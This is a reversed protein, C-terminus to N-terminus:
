SRSHVYPTPLPAMKLLPGLKTNRKLSGRFTDMSRLWTVIGALPIKSLWEADMAAFTLLPALVLLAATYALGTEHHALVCQGHMHTDLSTKQPFGKKCVECIFPKYRLHTTEVHRKVLQKKSTYECTPKKRDEPTPWTCQWKRTTGDPSLTPKAYREWTDVDSRPSQRRATPRIVAGGESAESIRPSGERSTRLQDDESSTLSNNVSAARALTFPRNLELPPHRDQQQSCQPSQPHYDKESLRARSMSELLNRSAPSRVPSACGEPSTSRRKKPLMNTASRDYHTLAPSSIVPSDHVSLASSTSASRMPDRNDYNVYIIPPHSM